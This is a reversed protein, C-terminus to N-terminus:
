SRLRCFFFILFHFHSPYIPPDRASKPDILINIGGREYFLTSLNLIPDVQMDRTLTRGERKERKKSGHVVCAERKNKKAWNSPANSYSYRRSRLLPHTHPLIPSTHVMCQRVINHLLFSSVLPVEDLQTTPADDDGKHHHYHFDEMVLICLHSYGGTERSEKGKM